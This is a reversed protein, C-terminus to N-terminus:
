RAGGARERALRKRALRERTLRSAVPANVGVSVFCRTAKVRCPYAPSKKRSSGRCMVSSLLIGVYAHRDAYRPYRIESGKDRYTYYPSYVDTLVMRM